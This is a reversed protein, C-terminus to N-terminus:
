VTIGLSRGKMLGAGAGRGTACCCFVFLQGDISSDMAYGVVSQNKILCTVRGPFCGPYVANFAETYCENWSWVTM